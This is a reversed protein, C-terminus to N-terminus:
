AGARELLEAPEVDLGSALRDLLKLTVNAEGAEIADLYPRSLDIMLCFETKGLGQQMRLERVRRGVTQEIREQM